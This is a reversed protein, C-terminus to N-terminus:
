VVLFIFDYVLSIGTQVEDRNHILVVIFEYYEFEHLHEHFYEVLVKAVNAFEIKDEIKVFYVM